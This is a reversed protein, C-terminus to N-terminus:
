EAEKDPLKGYKINSWKTRQCTDFNTVEKQVAERIVPSNFHQRTITETRDM